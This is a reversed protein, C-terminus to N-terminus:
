WVSKLSFKGKTITPKWQSKEKRLTVACAKQFVFNGPLFYSFPTRVFFRYQWEHALAQDNEFDTSPSYTPALDAQDPRVALKPPHGKISLLRLQIFSNSMAIATSRLQRTAAAHSQGLIFNSQKILQRQKSDLLEQKKRIAMYRKTAAALAVPNKAITAATIDQLAKIQQLRLQRSLPNLALLTELLPATIKQGRRGHERCQYKLALDNQTFGVLCFALVLAAIVAPLIALILALAFGDQGQRKM